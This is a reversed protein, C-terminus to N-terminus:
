LPAVRNAHREAPLIGAIDPFLQREATPSEVDVRDFVFSIVPADFQIVRILQFGRTDGSSRSQELQLDDNRHNGLDPNGDIAVALGSGDTALIAANAAALQHGISRARELSDFAIPVAAAGTAFGGAILSLMVARLKRM